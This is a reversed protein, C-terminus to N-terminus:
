SEAPLELAKIQEYLHTTPFPKMLIADVNATKMDSQVAEDRSSSMLMVSPPLVHRHRAEKIVEVATVEGLQYEALLLDYSHEEMAALANSPHQEVIVEFGNKSLFSSLVRNMVSHDLLMIKRITRAVTGQKRGLLIASRAFRALEHDEHEQLRDIERNLEPDGLKAAISIALKLNSIDGACEEFFNKIQAVLRSTEEEDLMNTRYVLNLKRLAGIKDHHTSQEIIDLLKVVDNKKKEQKADGGGQTMQRRAMGVRAKMFLGRMRKQEAEARKVKISKAAKQLINMWDGHNIDKEWDAKELINLVQYRFRDSKEMLLTGWKGPYALLDPPQQEMALPDLYRLLMGLAEILQKADCKGLLDFIMGMAGPGGARLMVQLAVQRLPAPVDMELYPWLADGTKADPFAALAKIILVKQDQDETHALYDLLHPYGAKLRHQATMAMTDNRVTADRNKLLNLLTDSDPNWRGLLELARSRLVKVPSAALEELAPTIQNAPMDILADLVRILLVEDKVTDLMQVLGTSSQKDGYNAMFAIMAYPRVPENEPFANNMRKFLGSISKRRGICGVARATAEAMDTRKKIYTDFAQDLRTIQSEGPKGGKLFDRLFMSIDRWFEESFPGFSYKVWELTNSLQKEMVDRIMSEILEEEWQALRGLATMYDKLSTMSLAKKNILFGSLRRKRDIETIVQALMEFLPQISSLEGSEALVGAGPQRYAEDLLIHEELFPIYLPHPERLMAEAANKIRKPNKVNEKFEKMYFQERFKANLKGMVRMHAPMLEKRLGKSLDRLAILAEHHEFQGFLMLISKCFLLNPEKGIAKTFIPILDEGGDGVLIELLKLRQRSDLQGVLTDIESLLLTRNQGLLTHIYPELKESQVKLALVINETFIGNTMLLVRSSALIDVCARLRAGPM